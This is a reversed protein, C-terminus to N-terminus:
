LSEVFQLLQQRESQSLQMYANRSNEAEGDHWLIAEEITRARGDHLFTAQPNVTKTLGVGWLAPTKWETGGADGQILDDALGECRQVYECQAGGTCLQGDAMERTVVCSGGMDHLLLDTYPFITQGSLLAIPQADPELSLLTLEGLVSGAAEGTVHRPTHCGVCNAQFFLKRGAIIGDLWLESNTDYGRRAPVGLVRNYFEVLALEKDSVDTKDATKIEQEAIFNCSLQPESCPEDRFVSTTIGMDGQYAGAVQQLVTPNQAKYAFRGLMEEGSLADTVMSARGSIGDNDQDSADVLALINDAPIAELLGVGFIAPALRPSFRINNTFDGFSLDKIRYIPSRLQYTSGDPYTGSIIEYEIYPTAEGVLENGNLSGDYVALGLNIDGGDFSQVAFPQLQNGYIPDAAGTEDALKFLMTLMPQTQSSPLEGRGDSIHCNQCVPNNLLPGIDTHKTRFLHDGATFFGDQKFNTKIMQPRTGFADQNDVFVTADGGTLYEEILIIDASLPTLGSHDVVPVPPTPPVVVPPENSKSSGGCAGLSSAIFMVIVVKNM